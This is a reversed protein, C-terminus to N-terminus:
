QENEKEYLDRERRTAKRASIVRFIDHERQEVISYVVVVVSLSELRGVAWYRPEEDSSRDEISLYHPDRFVEVAIEFPFGHKRVNKRNKREDWVFKM